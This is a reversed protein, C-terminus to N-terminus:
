DLMPRMRAIGERIDDEDYHAFSLRLYNGLGGDSSFSAGPQFGTQLERARERFSTTDIEDGFRIWFFYGHRYTRKLETLHARQLGLDIVHRVIPREESSPESRGCSPPVRDM